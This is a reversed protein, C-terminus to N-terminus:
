SETIGHRCFFRTLDVGILEAAAKWRESEPTDFIIKNDAPAILWGDAMLEQELQGPSWGAFGLAFLFKDPGKGSAVDILIEKATTLALSDNIKISPYYMDSSSYLIYGQEPKVPGGYFVPMDVVCEKIELGNQLPSFSSLLIRNVVLGFAGDKTHDCI